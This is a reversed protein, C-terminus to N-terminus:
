AGPTQNHEPSSQVEAGPNEGANSGQPPSGTDQPVAAGAGEKANDDGADQVEEKSEVAEAPPAVPMARGILEHMVQLFIHIPDHAAHIKPNPNMRVLERIGWLEEFVMVAFFVALEDPLVRIAHDKTKKFLKIYKTRLPKMAMRRLTTFRRDMMVLPPPPGPPTAPAKEPQGEPPRAMDPTPSETVPSVAPSDVPGETSQQGDTNQQQNDM